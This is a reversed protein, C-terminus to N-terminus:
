KNLICHNRFYYLYFYIAVQPVYYFGDASVLRTIGFGAFYIVILDRVFSDSIRNVRFIPKIFCYSAILGGIVGLEVLLQLIGNHASGFGTIESFGNLRQGLTVFEGGLGWGFIPRENIMQICIDWFRERGSGDDLYGALAMELSRSRMGFRSFLDALGMLMADKFIFFTILFAVFLISYFPNRAGQAIFFKYFAFFALSLLIGRNAYLILILVEISTLLVFKLSRKKFLENFHFLTPTILSFGFFMSYEIAGNDGGSRHFVLNFLLIISILYSAKLCTNYLVSKDQVSCVSVGIPIWWAFTLFGTARFLEVVPEDRSMWMCVSIGYLFAFVLYSYLLISNSRKYVAGIARFLFFLILVGWLLSLSNMIGSPLPLTVKMTANAASAIFYFAVFFSIKHDRKLEIRSNEIM